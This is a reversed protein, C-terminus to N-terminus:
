RGVIQTFDQLVALLQSRLQMVVELPLLLAVVPGLCSVGEDGIVSYMTAAAATITTISSTTTITTIFITQGHKCACVLAGSCALLRQGVQHVELLEVHKPSTAPELRKLFASRLCEPVLAHYCLYINLLLARAM